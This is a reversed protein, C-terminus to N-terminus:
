VDLPGSIVYKWEEISENLLSGVVITEGNGVLFHPLSRGGGYRGILM